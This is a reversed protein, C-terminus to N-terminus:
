DRNFIDNTRREAVNHNTACLIVYKCASTPIVIDGTAKTVIGKNRTSTLIGKITLAATIVM